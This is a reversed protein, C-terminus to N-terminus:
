RVPGFHLHYVLGVMASTAYVHGSPEVPTAYRQSQLDLKVGFHAHLDYDVGVGLALVNSSSATYFIPTGPVQLPTVYQIEGRGYLVTAYPKFRPLPAILKLGVLQNKQGDVGGKDIAMTARYELAPAVRRFRPLEVDFGGTLSLNRGSDLGTEVASAGGFVSPRLNQVATAMAQSVARQSVFLLAALVLARLTPNV